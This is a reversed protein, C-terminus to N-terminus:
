ASRVKPNLYSYSLDVILNVLLVILVTVLMVGQIMPYDRAFVSRILLAGIGPVAFVSEIVVSGSLLSQLQLGIATIVPLAANKLAHKGVVSWPQLGKATATRVYDRSLVDRMAGRLHRAIEAAPGVGLAIAPLILHRSWALFGAELPQYGTAPLWRAQVALLLVLMLGIFFPPTAIGLTSFMTVMRDVWSGAYLAAILGVPIAILLAVLLAAGAISLTIPLRAFIAGGVSETSILSQGLDGTFVGSFMRWYQVLIPDNLGLRDRVREIDELTAEAGGAIIVAPDGPSLHLLLFVIFTVIVILPVAWAIRRLVVNLM